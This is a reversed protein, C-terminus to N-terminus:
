QSWIKLGETHLIPDISNSQVYYTPTFIRVVSIWVLGFDFKDEFINRVTLVDNYSDNKLLFLM